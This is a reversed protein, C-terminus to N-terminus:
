LLDCGFFGESVLFPLSTHILLPIVIWWEKWEFYVVDLLLFEFPSFAVMTSAYVLERAGAFKKRLNEISLFGGVGGNGDM